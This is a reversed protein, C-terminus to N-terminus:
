QSIYSGQFWIRAGTSPFEAVTLLASAVSQGSKLLSITGSGPSIRGVLRSYGNTFTINDWEPIEIFQYSFKDKLVSFPLGGVSVTGTGLTGRDFGLYGSVTVMKGHRVYYGYSTVNAAVGGGSSAVSPSWAGQNGFDGFSNVYDWNVPTGSFYFGFSYVKGAAQVDITHKADEVYGGQIVINDVSANNAIYIGTPIALPSTGTTLHEFNVGVLNLETAADVYLGVNGRGIRTGVISIRTSRNPHKGWDVNKAFMIGRTNNLFESDIINHYFSGSDGNVYPGPQFWAGNSCNRISVGRLSGYSNDVLTVTQTMDAPAFAICTVSTKSGVGGSNGNLTINELKTSNRAARVLVMNSSNAKIVSVAGDGALLIGSASDGVTGVPILIGNGYGDPGAASTSLLYTGKPFYLRGGGISVLHSVAAQIATRDDAVGDGKAGFDKVSVGEHVNDILTRGASATGTQVAPPTTTSTQAWAVSNLCAAIFGLVLATFLRNM